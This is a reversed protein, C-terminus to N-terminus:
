GQIRGNYLSISHHHSDWIDNEMFIKNLKQNKIEGTLIQNKLQLRCWIEISFKDKIAKKM